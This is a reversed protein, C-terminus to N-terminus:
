KDEMGKNLAGMRENIYDNIAFRVLDNKSREEDPSKSSDLEIGDKSYM